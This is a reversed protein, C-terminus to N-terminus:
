LSNARLLFGSVFHFTLPQNKSRAIPPEFGRGEAQSNLTRVILWGM